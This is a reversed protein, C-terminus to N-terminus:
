DTTPYSRGVALAASLEGVDFFRGTVRGDTDVTYYTPTYHLRLEKALSPNGEVEHLVRGRGVTVAESILSRNADPGTVVVTPSSDAGGESLAMLDDVQEACVGCTTSLLAVTGGGSPLADRLDIREGDPLAVDVPPIREGVALGLKGGIAGLDGVTGTLMVVRRTAALAAALALLATVWAGALAIATLSM